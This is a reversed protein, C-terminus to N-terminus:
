VGELGFNLRRTVTYDMTTTLAYSAAWKFRRWLTARKIQVAPTIRISDAIEGDVYARMAEAFAKDEIRLMVELNLYISRFDFNSSGIHVADDVIYLKTHLKAKQYEYIKVRGRLLGAYTFRAAAITATNDSKAATVVRAEGRRGLTRIRKRMARSPSFYAAIIHLRKGANIDKVISAPWPNHRRMPGGFKWQLKGDCENHKNLMTLLDRIRQRGHTTWQHVDDYYAQLAAVAPGEVLLWLDRWRGETDDDMYFKNINAGGILARKKDAIAMKQHNRILYRRGYSPHFICYHGGVAKLSAFFDEKTAGCGFRDVLLRVKVGRAAARALADRVQEGVEDDSFMYFLLSLSEKAEDILTLISELRDKGTTMLRLRNREIM